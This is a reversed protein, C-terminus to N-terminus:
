AARRGWRFRLLDAARVTGQVEGADDVVVAVEANSHAFAEVVKEPPDNVNVKLFTRDVVGALSAPAAPRFALRGEYRSLRERVWRYFKVSLVRDFGLVMPVTPRGAIFELHNQLACRNAEGDVRLFYRLSSDPVLDDDDEPVAALYTIDHLDKEWAAEFAKGNEVLQALEQDQNSYKESFKELTDVADALFTGL